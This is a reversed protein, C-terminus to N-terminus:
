SVKKVKVVYYTVRGSPPLLLQHPIGPSIHVVDGAHLVQQVGGSITPAKEEGVASTRPHELQGGSILTAEGSVIVFVDSWDRHQEAEGTAVRTTLMTLHNGYEGLRQPFVKGASKAADKATASSLKEIESSSVVEAAAFPKGTLEITKLTRFNRVRHFTLYNADHYSHAGGEGDDFATRALVILDKGDFQWDAYQFGHTKSDANHAVIVRPTWHVLDNSSMVALTNRVSGPASVALSEGPLAPNSITWYLKSVPDFRITFKTAGGPFEAFRELELDQGKLKLIAVHQQNNVRLVDLIDGDPAVVANGELWTDGEDGVPFSLRHSFTWSAASTLDSDLPASMVFARFSGWPGPPHYEFARYIRGDHFVVPVPATHYGSDETLYHTDSWTRGDDDSTRVVIRGYEANTGLLYIRKKFVFLGSWFQEKLQAVHTWSLGRDRSTLIETEASVTSTSGPGFLDHTAVYSGDPAIVISPSGIYQRTAAPQHAVVVGPVTQGEGVSAMIALCLSCALVVM